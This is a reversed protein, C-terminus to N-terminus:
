PKPHAAWYDDAIKQLNQMVDAASNPDLVFKSIEDVAAEAIPSPTSEWYRGLLKYHGQSIAGNLKAVEKDAPLRADSNAVLFGTLDAWRQEGDKSMWYTAAKVAIDHTESNKAVLLPGAEFIVSPPLGATKNPVVFMGWDKGEQIGAKSVTDAFWTGVLMHAVKGQAFSNNMSDGTTFGFPSTGDDMWGKGMWDRWTAFAAAVQPDTYKAKGAMLRNYFDPDTRILFESFWIFAPWRGEITQGIPVKGAAKIKALNGELEDWTKPVELGLEKYVNKNYFMAWYAVNNPVAYIKGDFTFADAVEQKVKGEALLPKWIVTLDEILGADVLDKMRYGSWWTFMGPASATPLSARVAAQYNTTDAFPTVQWTANPDDKGYAEFNSQWGAKDHSVTLNPKDAASAAGGGSAVLAAAGFVVAALSARVKTFIM